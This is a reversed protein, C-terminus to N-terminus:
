TRKTAAFISCESFYMACDNESKPQWQRGARFNAGKSPRNISKRGPQGSPLKRKARMDTFRSLKESTTTYEPQIWPTFGAKPAQFFPIFIARFLRHWFHTLSNKFVDRLQMFIRSKAYWFKPRFHQFIKCSINTIWFNKSGKCGM